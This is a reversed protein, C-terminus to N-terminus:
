GDRLFLNKRVNKKRKLYHNATPDCHLWISGTPKLVRRMELLRVAMMVLYSKMGKGHAVGATECVSYVAPEADAILGLWAEDSDSLTWADKFSAGAAETGIPASYNRNSNFPPDLYVLDVCGSNLGRMVDLNDGEFVTRKLCNLSM